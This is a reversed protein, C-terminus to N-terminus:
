RESNKLQDIEDVNKQGIVDSIEKAESNVATQLSKLQDQLQQVMQAQNKTARAMEPHKAYLSETIEIGTM